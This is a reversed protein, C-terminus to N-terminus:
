LEVSRGTFRAYFLQFPILETEEKDLYNAKETEKYAQDEKKERTYDLYFRTRKYGLLDAEKMLEKYTTFHKIGATAFEFMFYSTVSQTSPLGNKIATSKKGILYKDNFSFAIINNEILKGYANTEYAKSGKEEADDQTFDVSSANTLFGGSGIADTPAEFDIYANVVYPYVVPVRM